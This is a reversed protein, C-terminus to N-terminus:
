AMGDEYCGKTCTHTFSVIYDIDYVHECMQILYVTNTLTFANKTIHALIIDMEFIHTYLKHFIYTSM